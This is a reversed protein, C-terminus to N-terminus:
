PCCTIYGFSIREVETYGCRTCKYILFTEEFCRPQYSNVRHTITTVSGVEYSHGFLTCWLNYTTISRDGYVLYDAICERENANFPTDTGFIVTVNEINYSFGMMEDASVSLCMSVLIISVIALSIFRKM